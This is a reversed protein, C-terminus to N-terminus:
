ILSIYVCVCNFTLYKGPGKEQTYDYTESDNKYVNLQKAQYIDDFLSSVLVNVDIVKTNSCFMYCTHTLFKHYQGVAYLMRCVSHLM